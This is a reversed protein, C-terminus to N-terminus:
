LILFTESNDFYCYLFTRYIFCACISKFLCLNSYIFSRIMSQCKTCYFLFLDRQFPHSATHEGDEVGSMHKSICLLFLRINHAQIKFYLLLETKWVSPITVFSGLTVMLLFLCAELIASDGFYLHSDKPLASSFSTGAYCSEVAAIDVKIGPGLYLKSNISHVLIYSLFVVIYWVELFHLFIHLIWQILNRSFINFILWNYQSIYQVLCENSEFVGPLFKFKKELTTYTSLFKSYKPM